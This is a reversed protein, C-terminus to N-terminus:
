VEADEPSNLTLLTLFVVDESMSKKKELPMSGQTDQLFSFKIQTKNSHLVLKEFQTICFKRNEFL